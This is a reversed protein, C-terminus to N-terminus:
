AIKRFGPNTLAFVVTVIVLLAGSILLADPTGIREAVAGFPVSTVPMFGLTMMRISMMRGRMEPASHLQILTVSLSMFLASTLGVFLLLPVALVYSTVQSSFTLGVGWLVCSVLVVLGRRSLNNMSALILTGTLAGVGMFTLLMGLGDSQVDLAERAWAPLLVFFSFGFLEPIIAMIILGRRLPDVAVYKLGEGIDSLVSTRPRKVIIQEGEVRMVAAVSVMYVGGVIFFVGATDIFIILVGALAPGVIRSINMGSNNLSIANMLKTEPVVDAIMAQRSPMQFAAMSGNMVGIVLVMWFTVIGSLDLAALALTFLGNGAQSLMVLRKRPIRDALAGALPSVVTMPVSFTMMVFALALPSDDALRLVLWGRTIMQMNMAMFSGMSALWLWRFDQIQLSEFMRIRSLALLLSPRDAETETPSLTPRRLGM